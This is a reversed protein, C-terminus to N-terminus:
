APSSGPIRRRAVRPRPRLRRAAGGGRLRMGRGPRQTNRRTAHLSFGLARLAEFGVVVVEPGREVPEGGVVRIGLELQGAGEPPEPKRVRMQGFSSPPEGLGQGPGPGLTADASRRQGRETSDGAPLAIGVATGGPDSFPDGEPPLQAIGVLQGVGELCEAPSEEGDTGVQRREGGELLTELEPAGRAVRETLQAREGTHALHEHGLALDAAGLRQRSLQELQGAFRAVRPRLVEPCWKRPSQASM